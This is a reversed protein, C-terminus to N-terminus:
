IPESIKKINRIALNYIGYGMIIALTNLVINKAEFYQNNGLYYLVYQIIEVFFSISVAGLAISKTNRFGKYLVPLFIGMPMLMFFNYLSNKNYINELVTNFNLEGISNKIGLGLLLSTNEGIVSFDIKLPCLKVSVLTLLYIIFLIWFFERNYDIYKDKNKRQLDRIFVIIMIIPLGIMFVIAESIQM